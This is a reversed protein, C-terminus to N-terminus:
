DKPLRTGTLRRGLGERDICKTSTHSDFPQGFCRESWTVRFVYATPFFSTKPSALRQRVLYFTNRAIKKFSFRPQDYRKCFFFKMNFKM